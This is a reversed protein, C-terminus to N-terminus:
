VPQGRLAVLAALSADKQDKGWPPGVSKGLAVMQKALAASTMGLAGQARKTLVKEPIAVLRLGCAATARVLADRFLVGEAKHMRFHVALIENVSWDPMPTGVLVASAAVDHGQDRARRMAARLEQIAMRDAAAIGRAVVAQAAAPELPQAAHYPQNGPDAGALEIRRRDTVVVGGDGDGLAVLAAWGSHAKTGFAIRM